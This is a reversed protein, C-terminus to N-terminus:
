VYPPPMNREWKTGDEALPPRYPDPHALSALREEAAELVKALERPNRIHRNREFEARIEIARDRWIDRRIVWDLENKLYRKYLSKVYSRHATTFPSSAAGSSSSSAAQQQLLPLSRSVSLLSTPRM